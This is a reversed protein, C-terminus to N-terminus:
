YETTTNNNADAARAVEAPNNSQFERELVVQERTMLSGNEIWDDFGLLDLVDHPKLSASDTAALTLRLRDNLLELSLIQENVNVALTKKNREVSVTTQSLLRAIADQIAAANANEPLSVSFKSQKLQGKGLEDPLRSVSNIFLGPQNDSELREFLERPSINEALELEVVEDLGEVGLALASPFAIRPKPHFGESMSLKLAARRAIREWLGALDRHSIWRLLGTKQFRVRYRIRLSAMNTPEGITSETTESSETVNSM